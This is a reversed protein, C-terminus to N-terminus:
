ARDYRREHQMMKRERHSIEPTGGNKIVGSESRKTVDAGKRLLAASAAFFRSDAVPLRFALIFKGDSKTLLSNKRRAVAEMDSESCRRLLRRGTKVSRRQGVASAVISAYANMGFM